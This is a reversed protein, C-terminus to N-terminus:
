SRELYDSLAKITSYTPNSQQNDRIDLLTNYHLGTASAVVILRRDMLAARVQDLTMMEIKRRSSTFLKYYLISM